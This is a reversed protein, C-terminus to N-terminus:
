ALRNLGDDGCRGRVEGTREASKLWDAVQAVVTDVGLKTTGKLSCEWVRLIRWGSKQLTDKVRADRARNGEIKERWFEQRSTPWRFLPCDHGHWFCGNVFIVAKYRPLVLDPKGPLRTNHLGYRFGLAHLGRRVIMEPKTNVGRIGAMMRSRTAVDVVDALRLEPNLFIKRIRAKM